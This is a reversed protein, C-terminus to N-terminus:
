RGVLAVLGLARDALALVQGGIWSSLMALLISVAVVKVVFTLSQDQIQTISQVLSVVVGLVTAVLLPPASLIVVMWLAQKFFLITEAM